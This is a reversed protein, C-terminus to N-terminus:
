VIVYLLYVGPSQRSIFSSARRITHVYVDLVYAWVVRCIELAALGNELFNM